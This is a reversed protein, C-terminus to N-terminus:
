LVIEGTFGVVERSLEALERTPLERGTGINIIENSNYHEMLFLSADALDDVYLFERFPKGSGWLKVYEPTIGIQEMIREIGLDPGLNFGVPFRKIDKGLEDFKRERLLRALHFKRILSPLVHATELNFNDGTGYLNTPMGSIFNTGYQENYFRCLKIAAIKAIAYPENTPELLGTLLYDEHMPQPAFRPYICSSGLNLLKKVGYVSSAHIINAAIMLNDYIFEARYTNNALIGGVKAAALFVYEPREQRFFKETEEQRRLDLERSTRTLLNAFGSEQLKRLIASGVLGRHGAIYIKSNRDM